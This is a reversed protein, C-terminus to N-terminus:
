VYLNNKNTQKFNSPKMGIRNDSSNSMELKMQM